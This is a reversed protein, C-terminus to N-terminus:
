NLEALVANYNVRRMGDETLTDRVCLSTPTSTAEPEEPVASYLWQEVNSNIVRQLGWFGGIGIIILDKAVEFQGTTEDYYTKKAQAIFDSWSIKTSPTGVWAVDAPLKGFSTLIDITETYLNKM